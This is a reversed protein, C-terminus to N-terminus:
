GFVNKKAKIGVGLEKASTEYKRDYPKMGFFDNIEMMGKALNAM